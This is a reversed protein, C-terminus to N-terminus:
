WVRSISAVRIDYRQSGAIRFILILKDSLPNILVIHQSRLM